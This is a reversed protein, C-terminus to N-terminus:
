MFLDKFFYINECVRQFHVSTNNTLSIKENVLHGCYIALFVVVAAPVVYVASVQLIKLKLVDGEEAKRLLGKEM